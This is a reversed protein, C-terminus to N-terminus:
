ALAAASPGAAENMRLIEDLGIVADVFRFWEDQATRAIFEIEIPQNTETVWQGDCLRLEACDEHDLLAVRMTNASVSLLIAEERRGDFHRILMLMTRKM